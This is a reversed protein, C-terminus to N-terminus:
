RFQRELLNKPKITKLNMSSFTRALGGVMSARAMWGGPKGIDAINPMNPKCGVGPELEAQSPLPFHIAPGHRVGRLPIKAEHGFPIAV